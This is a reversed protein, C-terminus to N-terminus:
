ASAEPSTKTASSVQSTKASASTLKQRVEAMSFGTHLEIVETRLLVRTMVEEIDEEMLPFSIDPHARDRVIRICAFMEDLLESAEFYPMSILAQIARKGISAFGAMGSEAINPPLEVGARAIVQIVRYAWREAQSAPMETIQFVKGKDRGENDIAVVKTKKM